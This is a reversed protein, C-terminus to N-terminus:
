SPLQVSYKELIRKGVSDTATARIAPPSLVAIETFNM